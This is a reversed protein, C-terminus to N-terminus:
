DRDTKVEKIMKKVKTCRKETESKVINIPTSRHLPVILKRQRFLQQIWQATM